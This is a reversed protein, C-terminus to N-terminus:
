AFPKIDWTELLNVEREGADALFHGTCLLTCIHVYPTGHGCNFLEFSHLYLCIELLFNFAM